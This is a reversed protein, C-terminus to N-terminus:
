AAEKAWIQMTLDAIAAELTTGYGTLNNELDPTVLGALFRGGSVSRLVIHSKELQNSIAEPITVIPKIKQITTTM